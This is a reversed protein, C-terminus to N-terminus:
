VRLRGEPTSTMSDVLDERQKTAKNMQFSYLRKLKDLFESTKELVTSDVKGIALRDVEAFQEKPFYQLETESRTKFCPM